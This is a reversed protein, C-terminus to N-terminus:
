KLLVRLESDARDIADSVRSRGSTISDIMDRFVKNSGVF